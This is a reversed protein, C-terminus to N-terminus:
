GDAPATPTELVHPATDVRPAVTKTRTKNSNYTYPLIESGLIADEGGLTAGARRGEILKPNGCRAPIYRGPSGGNEDGTQQLQLHISPNM